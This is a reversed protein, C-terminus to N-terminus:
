ERRWTTMRLACRLIRRFDANLWSERQMLIVSGALIEQRGQVANGQQSLMGSTNHLTAMPLACPSFLKYYRAGKVLRSRLQMHPMAPATHFSAPLAMSAAVSWRIISTSHWRPGSPSPVYPHGDGVAPTARPWRRSAIMSTAHPWCGSEVLVVRHPDDEVAFDVVEAVKRRRSSARAM